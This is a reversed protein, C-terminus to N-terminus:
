KADSEFLSICTFKLDNLCFTVLFPFCNLDKKLLSSFLAGLPNSWNASYMLGCTQASVSQKLQALQQLDIVGVKVFVSILLIEACKFVVGL